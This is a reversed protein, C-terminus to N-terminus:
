KCFNLTLINTKPDTDSDVSFIQPDLDSFFGKPDV